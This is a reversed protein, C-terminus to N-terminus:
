HEVFYLDRSYWNQMLNGVPWGRLRPNLMNVSTYHYIPIIPMEAALLLEAKVYHESPDAIGKSEALLADYQGSSWGSRNANSGSSLLDLYSSAENYDACWGARGIEFLGHKLRSTHIKWETNSLEVKVGLTKKWMQAIVIALSKHSEHTNYSVKVTLPNDPGYGAERLLQRARQNREQQTWSAYDLAPAEFDATAEHTLFYAPSQGGQLVREVLVDRWIAYSLAKRVRVDRLAPNGKDRLNIWYFYSCSSPMINVHGPFEEALVPVQGPPVPARDLEGAKYRILAANPNPIVLAVTTDIITNENDWYNANRQRVLKEGPKNETLVYAGNGVLNGPRTWSAGHKEVIAQAVPFTSSHVVMSPFYPLANDLTVEFTLEDLARVGLQEPAMDGRIVAGANKVSMLEMYWANSSATQPDALRRWAYVFDNATVREGNSWLADRLYFTYVLRNASVDFHEAAGPIVEGTADQNLLGEFLDRLVSAGSVDTSIQPDLSKINDILAYTFVQTDALPEATETNEAAMASFAFLLLLTPFLNLPM